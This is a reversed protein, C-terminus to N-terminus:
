GGGSVMENTWRPGRPDGDTIGTGDDFSTISHGFSRVLTRLSDIGGYPYAQPDIELRARMPALLRVGILDYEGDLIADIMSGFDWPPTPMDPSHRKLLPTSFWFTNWHESEAETPWWFETRDAEDFFPLWYAEDRIAAGSKQNRLEGTVLTLRNM